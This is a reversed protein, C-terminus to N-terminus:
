NMISALEEAAERANRLEREYPVGAFDAVLQKFHQNTADDLSSLKWLLASKQPSLAGVLITRQFEKNATVREMAWELLATRQDADPINRRIIADDTHGNANDSTLAGKLALWQQVPIHNEDSASWMPTAGNNNAKTIDAAAGVEFLWKCVPLHGSHCAIYMPTFGDNSAKTIDAAAGVEFLWKCMSLHGQYCAIWM